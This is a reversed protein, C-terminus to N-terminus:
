WIRLIALYRAVQTPPTAAGQTPNEARRKEEKDLAEAQRQGVAFDDLDVIQLIQQPTLSTKYYPNQDSGISPLEVGASAKVLERVAEVAQEKGAYYDDNAEIIVPIPKAEDGPTDKAELIMTLLPQKIATRVLDRRIEEYIKRNPKDAMPM